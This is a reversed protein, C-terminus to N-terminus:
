KSSEKYIELIKELEAGCLGYTDQYAGTFGHDGQAKSEFIIRYVDTWQEAAVVLFEDEVSLINNINEVVATHFKHFEQRYSDEANECATIIPMLRKQKWGEIRERLSGNKAERPVAAKAKYFENM